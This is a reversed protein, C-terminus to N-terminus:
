RSLMGRGFSGGVGAEEVSRRPQSRWCEGESSGEKRNGGGAIVALTSSLTGSADEDDARADADTAAAAVALVAVADDWSSVRTEERGGVASCVVALRRVDAPRVWRALSSKARGGGGVRARLIMWIFGADWFAMVISWTGTSGFQDLM